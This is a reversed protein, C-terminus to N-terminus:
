CLKVHYASIRKKRTSESLGTSVVLGIGFFIAAVILWDDLGLPVGKSRRAIFRLVVSAFALLGFIALPIIQQYARNDHIHAEEYAIEEPSLSM